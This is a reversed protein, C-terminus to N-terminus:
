MGIPTRQESPKAPERPILLTLHQHRRPTDKMMASMQRSTHVPSGIGNAAGAANLRGSNM